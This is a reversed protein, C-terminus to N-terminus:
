GAYQNSLFPWARYTGVAYVLGFVLVILSSWMLFGASLDPRRMATPMVLVLGRALYIASIAVLAPRMLPLRGIVGAGAFAYAAWLALVAAIGATVIAPRWEGREAAKAMREGAGLFCYWRPGGVICVLHLASAALSLWGGAVLWGNGSM